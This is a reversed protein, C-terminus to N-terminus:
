QAEGKELAMAKEVMKEFGPLDKIRHPFFPMRGKIVMQLGLLSQRMLQFPHHFMMYRMLLELEHSRGYQSVLKSFLKYFRNSDSGELHKGEAMARRKLAYMIETIKIQAPCKVTCEYCSSCVWPTISELVQDKMGARIMAFLKRPTHPLAPCVPCTGGCTGCQICSRLREGEPLSAIEDFFNPDQKGEFIVEPETQM